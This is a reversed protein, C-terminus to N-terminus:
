SVRQSVGNWQALGEFNLISRCLKLKERQSAELLRTRFPPTRQHTGHCRKGVSRSNSRIFGLLFRVKSGITSKCPWQLVVSLRLTRSAGFTAGLRRAPAGRGAPLREGVTTTDCTGQNSSFFRSPRALASVGCLSFLPSVTRIKQWLLFCFSLVDGSLHCRSAGASRCSCVRRLFTIGESLTRCQFQRTSKRMLLSSTVPALREAGLLTNSAHNLLLSSPQRYM